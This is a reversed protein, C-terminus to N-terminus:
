KTEVKERYFNRGTARALPVNRVTEPTASSGLGIQARIFEELM